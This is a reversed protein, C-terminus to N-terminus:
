TNSTEYNTHGNTGQQQAKVDDRFKQLVADSNLADTVVDILIGLKVASELAPDLRVRNTPHRNLYAEIQTHTIMM